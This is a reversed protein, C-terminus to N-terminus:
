WCNGIVRSRGACGRVNSVTWIMIAFPNLQETSQSKNMKIRLSRSYNEGNWRRGSAKIMQEMNKKLWVFYGVADAWVMDCNFVFLFLLELTLFKIIM